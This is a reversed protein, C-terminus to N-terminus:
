SDRTHTIENISIFELLPAESANLKEIDIDITLDDNFLLLSTIDKWVTAPECFKSLFTACHLREM